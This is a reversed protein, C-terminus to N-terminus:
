KFIKFAIFALFFIAGAMLFVYTFGLTQAIFPGMFSGSAGGIGALVYFLGAKRSPILEMSLSLTYVLFFAYAFGMLFLIVTALVVGYALGQAVAVLLFALM